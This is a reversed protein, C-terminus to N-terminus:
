PKGSYNNIALKDIFVDLKTRYICCLYWQIVYYSIWDFLRIALIMCCAINLWSIIEHIKINDFIHLTNWGNGTYTDFWHSNRVFTNITGFYNLCTRYCTQKKAQTTQLAKWAANFWECSHDSHDSSIILRRHHALLTIKFLSFNYPYTKFWLSFIRCCITSWSVGCPMTLKAGTKSM